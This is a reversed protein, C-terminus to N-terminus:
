VHTVALGLFVKLTTKKTIRNVEKLNHPKCCNSESKAVVSHTGIMKVISLSVSFVKSYLHIHVATLLFMIMNDLFM